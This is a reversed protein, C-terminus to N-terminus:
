TNPNPNPNPNPCHCCFMYGQDKILESFIEAYVSYMHSGFITAVDSKVWLMGVKRRVQWLKMDSEIKPDYHFPPDPSETVWTDIWKTITSRLDPLMAERWSFDGTQIQKIGLLQRISPDM